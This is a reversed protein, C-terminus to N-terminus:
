RARTSTTRSSKRCRRHPTGQATLVSYEIMTVKANADGMLSAGTIMVDRPKFPAPQPRAPAARAGSELLKKIEALDKQMAAQGEKIAQVEQKLEIVEDKTSAAWAPLTAFVLLFFSATALPGFIKM